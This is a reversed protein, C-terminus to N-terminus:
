LVECLSNGESIECIISFQISDSYGYKRETKSLSQHLVLFQVILKIVKQAISICFFFLNTSDAGQAKKVITCKLFLIFLTLTEFTMQFNYGFYGKEDMEFVNMIPELNFFIEKIQKTNALYPM